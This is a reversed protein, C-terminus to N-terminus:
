SRADRTLQQLDAACYVLAPTRQHKEQECFQRFLVVLVQPDAVKTQQPVSLYHALASRQGPAKVEFHLWYFKLDAPFDEVLMSDTRGPLLSEGMSWFYGNM